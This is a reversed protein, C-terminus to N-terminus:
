LVSVSKGWGVSKREAQFFATMGTQDSMRRNFAASIVPLLSKILTAKYHAICKSTSERANPSAARCLHAHISLLVPGNLRLTKGTAHMVPIPRGSTRRMVAVDVDSRDAMPFTIFSLLRLIRESLLTGARCRKHAPM